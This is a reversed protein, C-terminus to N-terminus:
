GNGFGECTVKVEGVVRKALFVEAKAKAAECEEMSGMPLPDWGYGGTVWLGDELFMIVLLITM